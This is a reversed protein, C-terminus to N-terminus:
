TIHSQSLKQTNRNWISDEEISQKNNLNYVYVQHYTHLTHGSMRERQALLVTYGSRIEDQSVYICYRISISFFLITLHICKIGSITEMRETIIRIEFTTTTTKM